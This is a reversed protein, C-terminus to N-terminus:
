QRKPSESRTIKRSQNRHDSIERCAKPLTPIHSRLICHIHNTQEDLHCHFYETESIAINTAYIPITCQASEAITQRLYKLIIALDTEELMEPLTSDLFTIYFFGPQDTQNKTVVFKCAIVLDQQEHHDQITIKHEIGFEKPSNNKTATLSTKVVDFVTPKQTLIEDFSEKIRSMTTSHTLITQSCWTTSSFIIGILIIKKLM